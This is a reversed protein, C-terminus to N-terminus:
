KYRQKIKGMLDHYNVMFVGILILLIFAIHALGLVEGDGLGWLTSVVPMLYTVSAVFLIDAIKILHYYMLLAMASGVIGLISMYLIGFGSGATTKTIQIFDTYGFLYITSFLGTIFFVVSVMSLTPVNSLWRKIFNINIAYSTTAILIYIGYSFNFSLTKDGAFALLGVIGAFGIVVGAISLLRAKYSFFIIGIILTFLTTTSNLIGAVYSEIGTQAYAFLFAPLGNALIGSLTLLLFTKFPMKFIYILAPILMISFAATMRYAAVINSPFYVLAKKMLIFSSGWTLVLILMFLLSVGKNGRM